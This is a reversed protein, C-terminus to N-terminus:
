ASLLKFFFLAPLQANATQTTDNGYIIFHVM